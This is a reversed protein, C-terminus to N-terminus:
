ITPVQDIPLLTQKYGGNGVLVGLKERQDIQRPELLKKWDIRPYSELVNTPVNYQKDGEAIFVIGTLKKTWVTMSSFM